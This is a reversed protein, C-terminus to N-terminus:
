GGKFPTQSYSRSTTKNKGRPQELEQSSVAGPPLLAINEPQPQTKVWKQWGGDAENGKEFEIM